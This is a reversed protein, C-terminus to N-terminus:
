AVADRRGPFIPVFRIELAACEEPQELSDEHGVGAARPVVGLLDDLHVEALLAGVQVGGCDHAVSHATGELVGGGTAIFGAILNVLSNPSSATSIATLIISFSFAPVLLGIARLVM